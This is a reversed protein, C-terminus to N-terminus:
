NEKGGHDKGGEREIKVVDLQLPPIVVIYSNTKPSTKNMKKGKPIKM